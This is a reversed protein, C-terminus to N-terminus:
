EVWIVDETEGHCSNCAGSAAVPMYKQNGEKSEAVPYLDQTFDVNETTYFNGLGDVEITKVLEGNGEPETYLMIKGDPATNRLDEQFVTGSVSFVAGETGNHCEMCNAGTKHSEKKGNQSIATKNDDDECSSITFMASLAILVYLSNKRFIKRM